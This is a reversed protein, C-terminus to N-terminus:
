DWYVTLYTNGGRYEQYETWSVSWLGAKTMNDDVADYFDEHEYPGGEIMAYTWGEGNKKHQKLLYLAADDLDEFACENYGYYTLSLDQQTTLSPFLDAGGDIEYTEPDYASNFWVYTKADGNEEDEIDDFTLDVIYMQDDLMIGNWSHPGGEATGGIRCVDFGAMSGLLYFADTYGQCNATGDLIAGVCNLERLAMYEETSVDMDPSDYVINECLWDHLWLELALPDETEAKAQEVLDEAIQLTQKEDESLQSTDGSHWAQLIKDGPYYTASVRLCKEEQDYNVSGVQFPVYNAMAEWLADPDSYEEPVQAVYCNITRSLEDAQATLYEAADELTMFHPYCYEDPYEGNLEEFWGEAEEYKEELFLQHGLDYVAKTRYEPANKYDGAKTFYEVAAAHDDEYVAEEGLEYWCEKVREASDEFDALREFMEIAQTYARNKFQAEALRYQSLSNYYDAEQFGPLDEFLDAATEYNYNEFAAMAIAYKLHDKAAYLSVALVLVCALLVLCGKKGKKKAAPHYEEGTEWQYQTM